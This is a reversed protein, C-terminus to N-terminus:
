KDDDEEVCHDEFLDKIIKNDKLNHTDSNIFKCFKNKINSKYEPVSTSDLCQVFVSKLGHIIQEDDTFKKKKGKNWEEYFVTSFIDEPIASCKLELYTPPYEEPNKNQQTKFYSFSGLTACNNKEEEAFYKSWNRAGSGYGTKLAFNQTEARFKMCLRPPFNLTKKKDKITQGHPCMGNANYFGSDNNRDNLNACPQLTDGYVNQISSAEDSTQLGVGINQLELRNAERKIENAAKLSGDVFSEHKYQSIFFLIFLFIIILLNINM